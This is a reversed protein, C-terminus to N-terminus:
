KLRFFTKATKPNPKNPKTPKTPPLPEKTPVLPEMCNTVKDLFADISSKSHDLLDFFTADNLFAASVAECRPVEYETVDERFYHAVLIKMFQNRPNRSDSRQIELLFRLASLFSQRSAPDFCFVAVDAGRFYTSAITYFREQGATDWIQLMVPEGGRHWPVVIFDIGITSIFNRPPNCRKDLQAILKAKGSDSPGIFLVKHVTRRNHAMMSSRVTCCLYPQLRARHTFEQSRELKNHSIHLLEQTVIDHARASKHKPLLLNVKRRLQM